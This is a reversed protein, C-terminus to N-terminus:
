GGHQALFEAPRCIAISGYHSDPFHRVNGTILVEADGALATALYVEDDPDGLGFLCDPEPEVLLAVRELLDTIALMTRHYPKHKPRTGVSRYERLIPLSLVVEHHRVVQLLVSRCVGRTRAAAVVVNCDLVVRM